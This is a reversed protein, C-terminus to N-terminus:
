QAPTATRVVYHEVMGPHKTSPRQSETWEGCQQEAVIPRDNLSSAIHRATAENDCTCVTLCADDWVEHLTRVAEGSTAPGNGDDRVPMPMYYYREYTM